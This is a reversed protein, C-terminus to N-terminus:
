IMRQFVKDKNIFLHKMAALVHLSILSVLIWAVIGHINFLQKSIAHNPDAWTPLQLGFFSVGYRGYSAGIFGSVPMLIMCLYLLWHILRSLVAQWRAVSTPLPAPTHLLRWILRYLILTAAVLGFSKHLDFYWGSNPQDEISLMYWGCGILALVLFAILWHLIIAVTSYRWINNNEM